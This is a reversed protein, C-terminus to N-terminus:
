ARRRHYPDSIAIVSRIPVGNRAIFEKLKVVESYTSTIPSDDIAIAQSPIGRKLARERGHQGHYFNHFSCWGGTFFISKGYGEKYLQIAYDIQAEPGAIVHIVDAPQLKDQVVLFNGVALLIRARYLFLTLGLLVVAGVILTMRTRRKSMETAVRQCSPPTLDRGCAACLTQTLLKDSNTGLFIPQVRTVSGDNM